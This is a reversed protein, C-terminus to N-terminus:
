DREGAQRRLEFAREILQERPVPMAKELVFAWYHQDKITGPWFVEFFLDLGPWEYVPANIRKHTKLTKYGDKRIIVDYDGYWTFPVTVPTRGIEEDNLYVLANPPDTTITITREVCGAPLTALLCMALGLVAAKLMAKM